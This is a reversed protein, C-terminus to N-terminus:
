TPQTRGLDAPQQEGVDVLPSPPQPHDALAASLPHDRDIGREKGLERGVQAV